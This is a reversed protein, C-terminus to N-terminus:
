GWKKSVKETEVTNEGAMNKLVSLRRDIAKIYNGNRWSLAQEDRIMEIEEFTLNDRLQANASISFITVVFAM